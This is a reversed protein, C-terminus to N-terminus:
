RREIEDLVFDCVMYAHVDKSLNFAYGIYNRDSRNRIEDCVQERVAKANEQLLDMIYDVINQTRNTETGNMRLVDITGRIYERVDIAKLKMDDGKLM